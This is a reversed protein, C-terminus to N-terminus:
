SHIDKPLDKHTDRDAGKSYTYQRLTCGISILIKKKAFFFILYFFVVVRRGGSKDQTSM